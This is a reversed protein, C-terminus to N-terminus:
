KLMAAVKDYNIKVVVEDGNTLMIKCGKGFRTVSRINKKIFYYEDIKLLVPIDNAPPLNEEQKNNM